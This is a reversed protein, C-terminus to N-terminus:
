YKQLISFTNKLLGLGLSLQYLFQIDLRIISLTIIIVLMELKLEKGINPNPDTPIVDLWIALHLVLWAIFTRPFEWLEEFLEKM